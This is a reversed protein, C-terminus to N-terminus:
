RYEYLFGIVGFMKSQKGGSIKAMIKPMVTLEAVSREVHPRDM